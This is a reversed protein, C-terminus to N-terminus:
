SNGLSECVNSIMNIRLVKNFLLSHASTDLILTCMILLHVSRDSYIRRNVKRMERASRDPDFNEM